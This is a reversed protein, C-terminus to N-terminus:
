ADAKEAMGYAHAPLVYVEDAVVWAQYFAAIALFGAGSALLGISPGMACTACCRGSVVYDASIGWVLLSVVVCAFAIVNPWFTDAAKVTFGTVTSLFSVITAAIAFGLVVRGGQVLATQAEDDFYNACLLARNQNDAYPVTVKLTEFATFVGFSNSYSCHVNGNSEARYWLNNYGPFPASKPAQGYAVQAATSFVEGCYEDYKTMGAHSWSNLAAAVFIAVFAFIAYRVTIGNSADAPKNERQLRGIHVFLLLYFFCSVIALGFSAGVKVSVGDADAVNEIERVSDSSHFRCSTEVGNNPRLFAYQARLWLAWTVLVFLFASIAWTKASTLNNTITSNTSGLIALLSAIFGVFVSLLLLGVMGASIRNLMKARTGMNDVKTETATHGTGNRGGQGKVPCILTYSYGNTNTFSAGLTGWSAAAAGLFESTDAQLDQMNLSVLAGTNRLRNVAYSDMSTGALILVFGLFTFLATWSNFSAM